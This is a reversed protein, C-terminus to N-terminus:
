AGSQTVADLAGVLAENQVVADVNTGVVLLMEQEAIAEKLADGRKARADEAAAV